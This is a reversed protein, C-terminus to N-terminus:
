GEDRMGDWDYIVLGGTERAGLTRYLARASTNDGEATLWIGECGRARAVDLLRQTVLTAIGRRRFDEHVGVENIFMSPPKDPHLVMVGTAMGVVIGDSFGLVIEHGPDALFAAAQVPDVPDDFVGAPVACLLALDEPGLQRIEIIATM